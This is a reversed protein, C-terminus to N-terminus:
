VLPGFSPRVAHGKGTMVILAIPLLTGGPGITEPEAPEGDILQWRAGSPDGPDWSLFEDLTMRTVPPKHLATM